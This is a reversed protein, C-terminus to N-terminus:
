SGGCGPEPCRLLGSGLQADADRGTLCRAQAPRATGMGDHGGRSIDVHLGRWDPIVLPMVM